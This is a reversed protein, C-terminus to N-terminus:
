HWFLDIVHTEHDIDVKLKTPTIVNEAQLLKISATVNRESEAVTVWNGSDIVQLAFWYSINGIANYLFVSTENVVFPSDVIISGAEDLSLGIGSYSHGYDTKYMIRYQTVEPIADWSLEIRHRNYDYNMQMNVQYDGVSLTTFTQPESSQVGEGLVNWTYETNFKLANALTIQKNTTQITTENESETLLVHYNGDFPNAEVVFGVAPSFIDAQGSETIKIRWYYSGASLTISQASLSLRTGEVELSYVINNFAIDNSIELYNIIM